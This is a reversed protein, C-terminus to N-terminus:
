WKNLNQPLIGIKEGSLIVNGFTPKLDGNIIKLLTTKGVGNPGVLGIKDGANITFSVNRFLERNGTEYSIRKLDVMYENYLSKMMLTLIQTNNRLIFRADM